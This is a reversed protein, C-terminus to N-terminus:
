TLSAIDDTSLGATEAAAVIGAWSNDDIPIGHTIREAMSEQEPEGPIRVRDFGKAPTTSRLYDAMDAVESHSKRLFWSSSVNSIHM